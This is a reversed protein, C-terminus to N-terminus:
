NKCNKERLKNFRKQALTRYHEPTNFKTEHARNAAVMLTTVRLLRVLRFHDLLYTRCRAEDAKDESEM